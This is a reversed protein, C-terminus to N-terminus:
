RDMGPALGAALLAIALMQLLHFAGNHDLPVGVDLSIASAQVALAALNVVLATALLGAGALRSLIALRLYIGSAVVLLGGAYVAFVLFAGAMLWTAAVLLAAAGVGWPVVRRAADFGRWDGVAGALLLAMASGMCFTLPHWLLGAWAAPLRLGHVVAGVGAAMGCLAFASRWLRVRRPCRAAYRGLWILVVLCELTLLADTAATTLETTSSVWPVGGVPVGGAM